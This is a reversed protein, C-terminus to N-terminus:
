KGFEVEITIRHYGVDLKVMERTLIRGRLPCGFYGRNFWWLTFIVGTTIGLVTFIGSLIAGVKGVQPEFTDSILTIRVWDGDPPDASLWIRGASIEISDLNLSLGSASFSKRSVKL